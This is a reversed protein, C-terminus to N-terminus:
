AGVAYERGRLSEARNHRRLEAVLDGLWLLAPEASSLLEATEERVLGATTIADPMAALCDIAASLRALESAHTSPRLARSERLCARQERVVDAIIEPVRDEPQGATRERVCAAVEDLHHKIQGAAYASVDPFASTRAARQLEVIVRGQDLLEYSRSRSLGFESRVYREWSRYGLALWARGEHAELLLTCVHRTATRIRETLDRAGAENLPNMLSQEVRLTAPGAARPRVPASAAEPGGGTLCPEQEAFVEEIADAISMGTTVSATASRLRAAVWASVVAEGRLHADELVDLCGDLRKLRERREDRNNSVAGM